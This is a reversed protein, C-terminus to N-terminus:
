GDPVRPARDYGGFRWLYGQFLVIKKILFPDPLTFVWGGAGFNGIVGIRNEVWKMWAIPAYIM